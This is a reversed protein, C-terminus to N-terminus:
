PRKLSLVRVTTEFVCHLVPRAYAWHRLWGLFKPPALLNSKLRSVSNQM